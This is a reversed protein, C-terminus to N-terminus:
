QMRFQKSRVFLLFSSPLFFFITFVSSHHWRQTEKADDLARQESFEHIEFRVVLLLQVVFPLLIIMFLEFVVRVVFM